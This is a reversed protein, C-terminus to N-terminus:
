PTWGSPMRGVLNRAASRQRSEAAADAPDGMAAAAMADAM